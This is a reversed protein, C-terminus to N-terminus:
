LTVTLAGKNIITLGNIEVKPATITVGDPGVVISSAGSRLMLGGAIM